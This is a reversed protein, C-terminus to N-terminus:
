RKKRYVLLGLLVVIAILLLVVFWMAGGRRGFFPCWGMYRGWAGRGPGMGRGQGMALLPLAFSNLLTFLYFFIKKM